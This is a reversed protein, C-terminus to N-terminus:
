NQLSTHEISIDGNYTISVSKFGFFAAFKTRVFPESHFTLCFINKNNHDSDNSVEHCKDKLTIYEQFIKGRYLHSVSDLHKLVLDLVINETVKQIDKILINDIDKNNMILNEYIRKKNIESNTLEKSSSYQVDLFINKLSITESHKSLDDNNDNQKIVNDINDAEIVVQSSCFSAFISIFIFFLIIFKM